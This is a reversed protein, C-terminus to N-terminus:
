SGGPQGHRKERLGKWRGYGDEWQDRDEPEYRTLTVSRRVLDRGDKLSKIEGLGLLQTMANGLATAEVPGALVPRGCANATWQNLLANQSGGGVIHIVEIKTGTLAEAREVVFRYKLALSELACRILEGPTAPVPQETKRCFEALAEPMHPPLWFSADDPEVLSRLPPAAQAENVLEEYSYDRSDRQWARRCEQVLWLGMINKLFRISGGVGGENTFNEARVAESILPEALEVGLLSWTGSSLYAWNSGGAGAAAVAAATDHTAPAIIPVPGATSEDQIFGALTGIRTGPRVIPGFLDLPLGFRKILSGAWERSRPNLCQTTSANTYECVPEGGFWFHFLDPMMLLRKASALMPSGDRKLALLQFLTNFRLFQIGTQAFLEQDPVTACAEAPMSETHPDRYHRPNGLLEDAHGLLAFDVGWTDVGLSALPGAAAAKRLGEMMEAFLRLVDWYLRAGVRVPGNPFRHVVDLTLRQGDFGARIARGSAAGLDFALLSLQAM